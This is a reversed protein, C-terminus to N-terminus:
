MEILLPIKDRFEPHPVADFLNGLLQSALYVDLPSDAKAVLVDRLLGFLTKPGTGHMEDGEGAEDGEDDEGLELGRPLFSVGHAKCANKNPCMLNLVLLTAELAKDVPNNSLVYKEAETIKGKLAVPDPDAGL